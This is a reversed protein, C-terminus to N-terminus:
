DEIQFAPNSSNDFLPPPGVQLNFCCGSRGTLLVKLFANKQPRGSAVLGDRPLSLFVARNDLSHHALRSVDGMGMVGHMQVNTEKKKPETNRGGQEGGFSDLCGGDSARFALGDHIGEASWDFRVQM